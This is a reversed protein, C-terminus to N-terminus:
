TDATGGSTDADNQMVMKELEDLAIGKADTVAVDVSDRQGLFQKGLFIAMTANKEALRWQSRRLSIKGAGRKQKFVESFSAHYTRKCWGDLTKDTVDFWGCIEELTCQLGCLNEFQKQDIEKRPRAM